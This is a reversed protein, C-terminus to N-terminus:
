RSPGLAAKAERLFWTVQPQAGLYYEAKSASVRGVRISLGRGSVAAFLDEDTTDDGLAIPFSRRFRRMLYRSAAGKNWPVQPLVDWVEHGARWRVPLDSTEVQLRDRLRRLSPLSARPVRRYHVTLTLGKNELVAEPFRQLDRELRGALRQVVSRM